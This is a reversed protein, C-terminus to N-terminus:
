IMEFTSKLLGEVLEYSNSIDVKSTKNHVDKIM